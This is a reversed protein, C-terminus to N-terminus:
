WFFCEKFPLSAAGLAVPDHPARAIVIAPLPRGHGRRPVNDIAIRSALQNALAKPIRGGLVIAAPDALAVVASTVASIGPTVRDLWRQVAPWTPDYRDLMAQITPVDHGDDVLLTRLIELAPREYGLAPLMGAFEGANGHHGRYCRGGLIMGGGFGHGFFYYAFDRYDHGVGYLSEGIAAVSGDNDLWVALGTAACLLQDLEVLAIDDLPDPPNMRAGDGIFFGTTGVGMGLLRGPPVAARRTVQRVLTDVRKVLAARQTLKLAEEHRARVEGAFDILCLALSDTTISLGLSFAFGPDLSIAVAPKGRGRVITEGMRLMGREVLEDVLRMVSQATLGTARVLEARTTTGHHRVLDLLDRENASVTDASEPHRLFPSPIEGAFPTAASM